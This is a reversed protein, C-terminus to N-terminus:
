TNQRSHLPGSQSPHPQLYFWNLFNSGSICAQIDISFKGYIPRREYLLVSEQRCSLYSGMKCCFVSLKHSNDFNVYSTPTLAPSQAWIETVGNTKWTGWAAM